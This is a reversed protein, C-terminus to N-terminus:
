GQGQEGFYGNWALEMIEDNLELPKGRYQCIDRAREVLDRPECGRLPRQKIRYRKLLKEVLGPPLVANCHAVYRQFIRAYLEPTPYDLLLRYGMRRMIAPPMVKEPDLNTSIILMQRFPVVLKQGTQLTLYDRKSELPIIWRNLLTDPQDRQCGLDDLLFTGGNAKMHLPAEYYGMAPVWFLDLDTGTLEGGVIIFPRQIRVWRHDIRRDDERPLDLPDEEHSQRDFVRINSHGAAICHPIWVAGANASHLMRGLTTKGTGPPGMIFLSRLSSAALGAVELVHNPLVLDATAEAVNEPTAKPLNAFQWEVIENYAALSVPAPGVYGSIELLRAARERGGESIAFRRNFLGVEGLVILLKDNALEDLLNGLISSPLRLQKGAWETTFSPVSHALKLALNSLIEKEVGVDTLNSPAEPVFENGIKTIKLRQLEESTGM